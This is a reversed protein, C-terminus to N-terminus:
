INNSVLSIKIDLAYYKKDGFEDVKFKKLEMPAKSTKFM